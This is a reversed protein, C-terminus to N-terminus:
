SMSFSGVEGEPGANAEKQMELHQLSPHLGRSVSSMWVWWCSSVITPGERQNERSCSACSRKGAHRFSNAAALALSCARTSDRIMGPSIPRDWWRELIPTESWCQCFQQWAIAPLQL